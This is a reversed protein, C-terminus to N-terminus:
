NDSLNILRGGYRPVKKLKKTNNYSAFLFGSTIEDEWDGDNIIQFYGINNRQFSSFKMIIERFQM